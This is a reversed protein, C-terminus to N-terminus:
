RRRDRAASKREEGIVRVRKEGSGKGRGGARGGEANEEKRENRNRQREESALRDFNNGVAPSIFQKSVHGAATKEQRTWEEGEEEEQSRRQQM